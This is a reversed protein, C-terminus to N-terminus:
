EKSRVKDETEGGELEGSQSKGEENSSDGQSEVKSTEPLQDTKSAESPQDTKSTESLQDTKEPEVKVTETAKEEVKEVKVTEAGKEKLAISSKAGRSSFFTLTLSTVMFAIAAGTTLKGLFSGAGRSGFITRSSGGFAAGMSAGKGRQLLVIFILSLTVIVHIITLIIYM